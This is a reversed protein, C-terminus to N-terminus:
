SPRPRTIVIPPAFHYDQLPVHLPLWRRNPKGVFCDAVLSHDVCCMSCVMEKVTVYMLRWGDVVIRMATSRSVEASTGNRCDGGAGIKIETTYVPVGNERDICRVLQIASDAWYDLSVNCLVWNDWWNKTAKIDHQHAFLQRDALSTPTNHMALMINAAIWFRSWQM